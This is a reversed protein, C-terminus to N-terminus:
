KTFYSSTRYSEGSTYIYLIEYTGSPLNSIDTKTVSTEWYYVGNGQVDRLVVTSTGSKLIKGHENKIYWNVPRDYHLMTNDVKFSFQHKIASETDFYHFVERDLMAAEVSNESSLGPVNNVEAVALGGLALAGTLLVKCLKNTKM